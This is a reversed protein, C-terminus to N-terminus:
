THGIPPQLQHIIPIYYRKLENDERHRARYGYWDERDQRNTRGISMAIM